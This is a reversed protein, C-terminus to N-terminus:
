LNHKALREVMPVGMATHEADAHQRCGGRWWDAGVPL